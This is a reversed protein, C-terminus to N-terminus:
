GGIREDEALEVPIDFSVKTGKGETSEIRISNGYLLKIRQSINWLGVGKKDADPKGIEELKRQSMGCGNDEVTFGVEDHENEKVSIRVTGGKLNSMLGHRIANEVLPQLTLPPIRLHPDADVDYEVELRDGFRAKEIHIYAHVLELENELTTLSDLQKFDFSGRLYQSLQLTLEEAQQPEDVCLEAIANLANFLFHPNIQSRLFAIEADRAHKVSAKLKTLSRVRAMLEEAEFPKAVYDNAGNEMSLKMDAARNRATLMLVPLEFPTFRERIGNLVEYGSMDPITIDLIVLFFDRKRTLEELALQGRNVVVISYGELKLLNMMSQLNAYDDDVVLIPEDLEGKVYFPYEIHPMGAEKCPREKQEAQGIMKHSSADALPITFIFISGEGPMSEVHIHGGHLEVLKRTISLGLGTGGDHNTESAAAQEFAMFIREQMHAAIGIGRDQIRVEIRDRIVEASINVEGQESFKVANGILNHLIQMLRNGDAYVAPLEEPISNVLTVRKDGLLFLHIRIVSDVAAKLDMFSKYLTIDGHKMKSYDLLENVLHTLRRGSGMVIGLNQAQRETVPGEVGKLLSDTISVIANLPTKLEHSTNSLFDDKIKDLKLLQNKMEDITRYAEFFRLVIFFIMIINFIIIYSQGLWLNDKIAIAFLITDVSYLNIMLVAMFLLLSKFRSDAESKIHLVAARLLLWILLLEYFVIIYAHVTMYISITLFPVLILFGGLVIAVAQTLKSSIISKQLQHFFFALIIFCAISSVDKAKYLAEFSIEPFFLLLAREGILGHYIAYLLCIVAILLLAYDRKRYLSAAVFCIFYILALAGLIVLPSFERVMSKQQQEIMADQQGFYLSVPIGSNIYDYNSVQIIIEVDRQDSTFFGIQPINGPEYTAEDMSTKGDELLKQGDIYVVSSFRINPKKLAFMGGVPLNRLVMRYTASGYAPLPNGNVITGNWQSPVRMLTTYAPAAGGEQRFNEPTLLQNWYFEWEGDLAIRKQNGYDWASLDMVGDRVQLDHIREDSGLMISLPIFSLSLLGILCIVITRGLM